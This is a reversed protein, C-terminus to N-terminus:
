WWGEPAQVGGSIESEGDAILKRKVATHLSPINNGATFSHGREAMVSKRIKSPRGSTIIKRTVRNGVEGKMNPFKSVTFSLKQGKTEKM